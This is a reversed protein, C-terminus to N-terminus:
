FPKLKTQCNVVVYIVITSTVGLGLTVQRLAAIVHTAKAPHLLPLHLPHYTYRFFTGANVDGVEDSPPCLALLKISWATM